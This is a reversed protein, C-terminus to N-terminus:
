PMNINHIEIKFKMGILLGPDGLNFGHSRDPLSHSPIVGFIEEKGNYNTKIVTMSFGAPEAQTGIPVPAFLVSKGIGTHFENLRDEEKALNIEKLLTIAEAERQSRNNVSNTQKRKKKPLQPTPVNYFIEPSILQETQARTVAQVSGTNTVASVNQRPSSGQESLGKGVSLQGSNAGQFAVADQHVSRGQNVATMRLANDIIRNTQNIQSLGSSRSSAANSIAKNGAIRELAAVGGRGRQAQAVLPVLMVLVIWILKSRNM